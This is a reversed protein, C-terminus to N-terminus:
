FGTAGDIQERLIDAHGAHRATEEVMHGLIVRLSDRQEEGPNPIAARTSLDACAHVIEDSRACARRYAAVVQDRTVGAPVAMSKDAVLQEGLFVRQFWHEEVGTLHQILGLLSTGSPVGPERVQQETLGESVRVVADRVKNLYGLLVFPETYKQDYTEDNM